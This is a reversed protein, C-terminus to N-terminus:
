RNAKGALARANVIDESSMNIDAAVRQIFEKESKDIRGDAYAVRWLNELLFRRDRVNFHEKILNTIENLYEAETALEAMDILRDITKGSISFTAALIERIVKKEEPDEDMDARSCAILLAAAAYRFEIGDRKLMKGPGPRMYIDFFTTFDLTM